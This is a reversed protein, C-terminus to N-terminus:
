DERRTSVSWSTTRGMGSGRSRSQPNWTLWTRTRFDWEGEDICFNHLRLLAEVLASVKEIPLTLPVRLISWCHVLVGFAGEITTRLRSLYFNYADESGTRLGKLNLPVTMYMNKTYANNNIFTFGRLIKKTMKNAELARYLESTVFATYDSAAGPWTMDCWIFRLEHDCIPQMNFDYKDKRHCRFMLQGCQLWHCVYLLPKLTCIVIGDIASVFKHFMAGSM